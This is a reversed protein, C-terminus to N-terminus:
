NPAEPSKSHDEELLFKKQHTLMQSVFESNRMRVGFLTSDRKKAVAKAKSGLRDILTSHHNLYPTQVNQPSKIDWLTFRGDASKHLLESYRWYDVNDTVTAAQDFWHLSWEYREYAYKATRLADALYGANYRQDCSLTAVRQNTNSYGSIMAVLASDAPHASAALQDVIAELQTGKGCQLACLVEVAIESDSGCLRFRRIREQEIKESEHSRWLARRNFPVAAPGSLINVLPRSDDLKRFLKAARVPDSQSLVIAVMSGAVHVRRLALGEASEIDNLIRLFVDPLHDRILEFDDVFVNSLLDGTGEKRVRELIDKLVDSNAKFEEDSKKIREAPTGTLKRLPALPDNPDEEEDKSIDFHPYIKPLNGAPDSM